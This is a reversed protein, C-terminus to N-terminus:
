WGNKWDNFLHEVNNGSSKSSKNSFRIWCDFMRDSKEISHLCWGVEMWSTYNNAREASLCNDSLLMTIAIEDESYEDRKRNVIHLNCDNTSDTRTDGHVVLNVKAEWLEKVEDYVKISTPKLNYRISLLELLQRNPIPTNDIRFTKTDPYYVYISTLTYAPIDPKSEGLFFWGQKKVVSEDFIDKPTNTYKIDGFSTTIINGDLALQRITQQFNTHLVLDPCEIHVGDKLSKSSSKKDEYPTPRLTVFFRIPGVSTIDIFKTMTTVYCEIFSHIHTISFQREIASETPYKFDLDILIPALGDNKRQEVLNIPRQKLVFLYEYLKDLFEPYEEDSVMWKGKLHGMGTVSCQNKDKETVHNKLFSVIQCETANINTTAM